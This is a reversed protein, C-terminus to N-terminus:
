RFTDEIVTCTKDVSSDIACISTTQEKILKAARMLSKCGDVDVDIPARLKQDAKDTGRNSLVRGYAFSLRTMKTSASPGPSPASHDPDSVGNFDVVELFSPCTRTGNKLAGIFAVMYGRGDSPAIIVSQSGAGGSGLPFGYGSKDVQMTPDLLLLRM